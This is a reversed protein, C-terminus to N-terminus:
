SEVEVANQFGARTNLEAEYRYLCEIRPWLSFSLFVGDVLM